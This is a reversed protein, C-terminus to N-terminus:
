KAPAKKEAPPPAITLGHSEAARQLNKPLKVLGNEDATLLFGSISLTGSSGAPFAMFVYQDEFPNSM